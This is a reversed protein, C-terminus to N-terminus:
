INRVPLEPVPYDAIIAFNNYLALSVKFISLMGRIKEPYDKVLLM